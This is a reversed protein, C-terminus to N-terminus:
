AEENKVDEKEKKKAEKKATHEEKKDSIFKDIFGGFEKASMNGKKVYTKIERVVSTTAKYTSTGMKWLPKVLGSDSISGNFWSAFTGASKILLANIGIVFIVYIFYWDTGVLKNFGDVDKNKILEVAMITRSINEENPASFMGGLIWDNIEACMVMTISMFILGVAFSFTDKLSKTAFSRTQNFIYCAALLPLLLISVGLFLMKEIIIFAFFMNIIFLGITLGLGAFGMRVDKDLLFNAIITVLAINSSQNALINGAKKYRNRKKGGSALDSQADDLAKQIKEMKAKNKGSNKGLKDLKKEQTKFWKKSFKKALTKGGIFLVLKVFLAEASILILKPKAYEILAIGIDMYDHRLINVEKLLCVMDDRTNDSLVGNGSYVLEKSTKVCETPIKSKDVIKKRLFERSINTGFDLTLEFTNSFVNRPNNFLVLGIVATTLLMKKYIKSFFGDDIKPADPALFTLSPKLVNYTEYVIWLALCVSILVLINEQFYAFTKEGMISFADYLSSFINCAWCDKLVPYIKVGLSIVLVIFLACLIWKVWTFISGLVSFFGLETKEAM